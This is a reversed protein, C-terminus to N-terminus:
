GLGGSTVLESIEDDSMGLLGQMVDFSHEGLCPGPSRPGGNYGSIRFQAGGYPIKGMEPHELYCNFGRHAYQPDELLDSSRQVM